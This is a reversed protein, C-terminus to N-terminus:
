HDVNGARISIAGDLDPNWTSNPGLVPTESTSLVPREGDTSHGFIVRALRERVKRNEPRICVEGGDYM